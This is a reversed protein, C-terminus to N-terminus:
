AHELPQSPTRRRRAALLGLGVAALLLAGPEPVPQLQVSSLQLASSQNFDGIDVVGFALEHHGAGLALNFSQEGTQRPFGDTGPLIAEGVGGLRHLTGDVVVFAYDPLAGDNTAFNWRVALTGAGALDFSQRLVSGEYAALAEPAALDLAGPALGAFVEVGAATGAEAAAQGSRNFHGPPLGADDEFGSSATTLWAGGSPSAAVDGLVQWGSLGAGFDGDVLPQAQAAVAAPVLAAFAAIRFLKM